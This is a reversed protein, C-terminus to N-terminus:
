LSLEKRDSKKSGSSEGLSITGRKLRHSRGEGRSDTLGTRTSLISDRSDGERTEARLPIGGSLPCGLLQKGGVRGLFVRHWRQRSVPPGPAVTGISVGPAGLWRDGPM